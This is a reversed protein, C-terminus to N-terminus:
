GVTHINSNFTSDYEWNTLDNSKLKVKITSSDGQSLTITYQNDKKEILDINSIYTVGEPIKYSYETIKWSKGSDNTIYMYPFENQENNKLLVIGINEDYMIFDILTKSTCNEPLEVKKWEKGSNTTLYATKFEGSGMTWDTGLAVYGFNQDNFGVIRRTIDKYMDNNVIDFNKENWTIGNDTSIKLKPNEGYFFAIPILENASIFWSSNQLSIDKYFNLTEKIDDASVDAKIWNNGYDRTFLLESKSNIYYDTEMTYDTRKVDGDVNDFVYKYVEDAITSSGDSLTIVSYIGPQITGGSGLKYDNISAAKIEKNDRMDFVNTKESFQQNPYISVEYFKLNSLKIQKKFPIRKIQSNIYKINLSKSYEKVLMNNTQCDNVTKCNERGEYSFELSKNKYKYYGNGVYNYNEDFYNFSIFVEKINGSKTLKINMSSINSNLKETKKTKSMIEVIEDLGNKELSSIGIFGLEYNNKGEKIISPHYYKYRITFLLLILIFSLVVVFFIKKIKNKMKIKKQIRNQEIIALAKNIEEEVNIKSNKGREGSLIESIDVELITSLKELVTIDPFSLGREWKSVAKDTVFLKNGLEQQTLGKEKRLTAIFKGIKNSDM